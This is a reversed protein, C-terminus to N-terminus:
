GNGDENYFIVEQPYRLGLKDHAIEAVYDEDFPKAIDAEMEDIYSQLEEVQERLADAKVKKENNDLRLMVLTVICAVTFMVIALRVFINKSVTKM